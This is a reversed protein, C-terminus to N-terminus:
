DGSPVAPTERFSKKFQPFFYAKVELVGLCVYMYAISNVRLGLTSTVKRLRRWVQKQKQALAQEAVKCKEQFVKLEQRLAKEAGNWAAEAESM